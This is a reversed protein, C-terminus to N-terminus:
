NLVQYGRGAMCRVIISRQETEGGAAGQAAGSLAGVGALAGRNGGGAAANLLLGFIAGVVAGAAAGEAAGGVRRAYDQCQTLDQEYVGIRTGTDVMPAYNAGTNACGALIAAAAIIAIKKM